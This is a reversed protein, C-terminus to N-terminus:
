LSNEKIIEEIISDIEQANIKYYTFEQNEMVEEVKGQKETNVKVTVSTGLPLVGNKELSEKEINIRVPVRQVIKIWNGTANQAPLISFASGSGASIGAVVGEYTKGNLDSEIEVPNGVKINKLQNEKFNANIWINNLDIVSFLSQGAGVEQGLSANKKAVVGSVPSIIKTKELNSYAKKYNEIASLVIPHSYINKSAGQIESNKLSTLAEEYTNKSQLYKFKVSDYNEKSTIGAKSTVSIRDFTKKALNMNELATALNNKDIQIKNQLAYYKRVADGLNAEANKLAIEYDTPDIEVLVKNKLVSDTNEVVIKNIVGPVQTTVSVQDGHIYANETEEKGYKFIAYYGGYLIGAIAVGTLFIGISKKGQNNNDNNLNNDNVKNNEM